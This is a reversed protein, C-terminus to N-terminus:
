EANIGAIKIGLLDLTDVVAQKRENASPSGGYSEYYERVKEEPTQEVTYGNVLAEMLIGCNKFDRAVFEQVIRKQPSDHEDSTGGAMCVIVFASNGKGRLYDLAEVVERPLTVKNTM